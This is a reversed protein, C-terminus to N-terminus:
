QVIIIGWHEALLAQIEKVTLETCVGSKNKSATLTSAKELNKKLGMDM